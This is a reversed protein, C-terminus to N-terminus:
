LCASLCAPGFLHIRMSQDHIYEQKSHVRVVVPCNVLPLCPEATLVGLGRSVTCTCAAVSCGKSAGLSARRAGPARKGDRFGCVRVALPAARLGALM